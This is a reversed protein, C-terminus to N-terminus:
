MGCHCPVCQFRVSWWNMSCISWPCVHVFGAEFLSDGVLWSLVWLGWGAVGFCFLVGWWVCFWVGLFM